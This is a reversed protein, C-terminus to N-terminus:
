WCGLKSLFWDKFTQNCALTSTPKKKRLCFSMLICSYSTWWVLLDWCYVMNWEFWNFIKHFLQCLLKQKRSFRHGQIVTLTLYVLIFIYLVVTDIMLGIRCWVSKYIDLYVSVNFTKKICNTSCFENGKKWYIKSLLLRWIHQEFQKMVVDSKMRILHFTHSFIFGVPKPVCHGQSGWALDLDTFTTYYCFDITGILM